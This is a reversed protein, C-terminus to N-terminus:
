QWVIRPWRQTFADGADEALSPFADRIGEGLSASADKVSTLLHTLACPAQHGMVVSLLLLLISALLLIRVSRLSLLFKVLAELGNWPLLGLVGINHAIDGFEQRGVCEEHKLRQRREGGVITIAALGLDDHSTDHEDDQRRCAHQDAERVGDLYM